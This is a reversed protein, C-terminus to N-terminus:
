LIYARFHGRTTEYVGGHSPSYDIPELTAELLRMSVVMVQAITWLRHAILVITAELLRVSVVM